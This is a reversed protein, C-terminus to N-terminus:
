MNEDDDDEGGMEVDELNLDDLMEELTIKPVSPDDMDNTDVPIQKSSDRFINVNQRLQPDEELDELFQNYDRNIPYVVFNTLQWRVSPCSWM